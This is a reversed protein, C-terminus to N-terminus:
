RKLSMTITTGATAFWAKSIGTFRRGAALDLVILQTFQKRVGAEATWEADRNIGNYKEVVVDGAILFSSLPFSKDVGAGALWRGKTVITPDDAAAAQQSYNPAM